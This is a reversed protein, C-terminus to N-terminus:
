AYWWGGGGMKLIIHHELLANTTVPQGCFISFIDFAYNYVKDPSCTWSTLININIRSINKIEMNYRYLSDVMWSQPASVTIYYVTVNYMLKSVNRYM